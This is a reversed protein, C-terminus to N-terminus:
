QYMYNCTSKQKIKTKIKRKRIGKAKPVFINRMAKKKNNKHKKALGSYFEHM